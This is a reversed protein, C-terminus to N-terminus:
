RAVVSTMDVSIARAAATAETSRARESSIAPRTSGTRAVAVPREAQSALWPITANAPDATSTAAMPVAMPRVRASEM